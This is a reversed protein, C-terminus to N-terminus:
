AGGCVERACRPAVKFVLSVRDADPVQFRAFPDCFKRGHPAPSAAAVAPTHQQTPQPHRTAPHSSAVSLHSGRAWAEISRYPTYRIRPRMLAAVPAKGYSVCSPQTKMSVATPEPLIRECVFNADGEAAVELMNNNHKNQDTIILQVEQPHVRSTVHSQGQAVRRCRMGATADEIYGRDQVSRRTASV